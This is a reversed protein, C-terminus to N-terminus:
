IKAHYANIKGDVIDIVAYSSNCVAGPNILYIGDIKEIYPTHTHGFICIDAEEAKAAELLREYGHKAGYTHGHCFFIKKGAFSLVKFNPLTSGFDCNGAVCEMRVDPYIFPINEIDGESDGCNIFLEANEKHRDIIDYLNNRRRHSDSTAVIRMM